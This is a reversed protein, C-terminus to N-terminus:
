AGEEMRERRWRYLERHMANDNEIGSWTAELEPFAGARTGEEVARFSLLFAAPLIGPCTAAVEVPNPKGIAEWMQEGLELTKWLATAPARMANARAAEAPDGAYRQGHDVLWRHYREISAPSSLMPAYPRGTRWSDFQARVYMGPSAGVERAVTVVDVMYQWISLQRLISTAVNSTRGLQRCYEEYAELVEADTIEPM